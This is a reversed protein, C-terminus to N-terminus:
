FINVCLFGTFSLDNVTTMTILISLWHSMLYITQTKCKASSAPKLILVHLSLCQSKQSIQMKQAKHAHRLQTFEPVCTVSDWLHLCRFSSQSSFLGCTCSLKCCPLDTERSKLSLLSNQNLNKMQYLLIGACIRWLDKAAQQWHPSSSQLDLELKQVFGRWLDVIALYSRFNTSKHM